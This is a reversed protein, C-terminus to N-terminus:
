STTCRARITEFCWIDSICAALSRRYQIYRHLETKLRAYHSPSLRPWLVESWHVRTLGSPRARNMRSLWSTRVTWPSVHQFRTWDTKGIEGLSWKRIRDRRHQGHGNKNVFVSHRWGTKDQRNRRDITELHFWCSPKWRWRSPSHRIRAGFITTMLMCANWIRWVKRFAMEIRRPKKLCYVPKSRPLPTHVTSCM